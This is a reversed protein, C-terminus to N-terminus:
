WEKLSSNKELIWDSGGRAYNLALRERGITIVQSCLDVGVESSVGKLSNLFHHPIGKAERRWASGDWNQECSQQVERSM